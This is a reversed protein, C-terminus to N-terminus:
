GREWNAFRIDSTQIHRIMFAMTSKAVQSVMELRGTSQFQQLANRLSDLLAHHKEMHDEYDDYSALRMLLEESLFHAESYDILQQLLAAITNGDKGEDVADQLAQILGFQIRHEGDMTSKRAEAETESM